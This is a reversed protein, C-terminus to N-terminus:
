QSGKRFIHTFYCEECYEDYTGSAFGGCRACGTIQLKWDLIDDKLKAIEVDKARISQQLAHIVEDKLQITEKMVAITMDSMVSAM